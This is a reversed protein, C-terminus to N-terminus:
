VVSLHSPQATDNGNCCQLSPHTSSWQRYWAVAANGQQRRRPSLPQSFTAQFIGRAEAIWKLGWPTPFADLQERVADLETSLDAFQASNCDTSAHIIGRILEPLVGAVGSVVGDCVGERLADVLLGDNGVIRCAPIRQRTLERLTELSRGSDKIGIVNPVERILRCVTGPELASTFDPLNYLLVPIQITDAVARVFAELDEQPYPFFYPMPLLVATAGEGEAIRALELSRSVGAAGIGCLINRGGVAKRVEALLRQLEAPTSLCFEGTAGNITFGEIQRSLLFEILRALSAYDISDDSEIRPTLLAAYVGKVLKDRM